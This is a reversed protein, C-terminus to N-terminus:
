WKRASPRRRGNAREMDAYEHLWEPVQQKSEKLLQILPKALSIDKDCFFAIATGMKGARGTRGIRHVYSEIEQPLDYNVVQSVDPVDLGRAAVDTAILIPKHGARFSKLARDREQWLVM